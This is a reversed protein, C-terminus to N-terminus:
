HEANDNGGSLQEYIMSGSDEFYNEAIAHFRDTPYLRDDVTTVIGEGALLNVTLKVYGMRSGRSAKNRDKDESIMPPLSDWLVAVDKFSNSDNQNSILTTIDDGLPKLENTVAEILEDIRIYDKIQYTDSTQYFELLVEYIIFYVLYLEKNLRLGLRKKLDDNTYGFVKNGNGATAFIASDHEYLKLGLRKLLSNTIDYVESDAYYANYLETTEKDKLSVSKGTALVSYIDLAKELSKDM